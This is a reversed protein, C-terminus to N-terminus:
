FRHGLMLVQPGVMLCTVGGDFSTAGGDCCTAGSFRHGIMWVQPGVM